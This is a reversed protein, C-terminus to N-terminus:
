KKVPLTFHLTAGQDPNNVAWMHGNHANIIYRNISLGLGMGEPKTSVFPEFIQELNQEEIGIGTDSVEVHINDGEDQETRIVLERSGPEQSMMADFGNIVLNLIVQQLQIKDGMVDPLNKNTDLKIAMKRNEADRQTLNIVEQITTNINIPVAEIEGKKMFDRLQQIIDSSRTTDDVIDSLIERLENINPEEAELFRKAAQANSMIATLPQNIEHALAGALTGVTTVRSVHTLEERLQRRDEEVNKRETIDHVTGAM